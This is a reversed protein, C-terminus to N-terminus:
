GGIRRKRMLEQHKEAGSQRAVVKGAITRSLRSRRGCPLPRHTRWAGFYKERVSKAKAIRPLDVKATVDAHCPRKHAPARNSDDDPGRLELPIPHSVEWAQGVRIPQRCIHCIHGHAELLALRQRTTLRIRRTM